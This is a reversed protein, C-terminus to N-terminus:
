RGEGAVKRFPAADPGRPGHFLEGLELMALLRVWMTTLERSLAHEPAHEVVAKGAVMAETVVNDYPLEGVVMVDNEKAWEKLECTIDQNLDAKNICLAPTIGFHRAVEVVRQVDHLGSRTPEAVALVLDTNAIAAIVACGIGPPGDIIVLPKDNAEALERARARVRAVLKGGAEEGINLRAHVLSGHRTDSVYVEGTDADEMAIADGPCVVTCVSCGECAYPDIVLERIANFRCVEECMGCRTCKEPDMVAKRSGSFDEKERVTPTLILHLDAADVDCDALLASRALAAFSATISTKGTGGKGSVVALQKM